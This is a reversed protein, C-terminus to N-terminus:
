YADCWRQSVALLHSYDGSMAEERYRNVDEQSFGAKRLAESCASMITFANGDIGLLKVRPKPRDPESEPKLESTRELAEKHAELLDQPIPMGAKRRLWIECQIMWDDNFEYYRDSHGDCRAYCEAQAEEYLDYEDVEDDAESAFDSPRIRESETYAKVSDAALRSVTPALPCTEAMESLVLKLQDWCIAYKNDTWQGWGGNEVQYNMNGLMVAARHLPDLNALFEEYLWRPESTRWLAYAEDMLSQHYDLGDHMTDAM